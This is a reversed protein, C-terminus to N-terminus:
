LSPSFVYEFLVKVMSTATIVPQYGPATLRFGFGVIDLDPCFIVVSRFRQACDTAFFNSKRISADRM